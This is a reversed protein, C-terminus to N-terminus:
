RSKFTSFCVKWVRREESIELVARPTGDPRVRAHLESGELERRRLPPEGEDDVEEVARQEIDGAGDGLQRRVRHAQVRRDGGDRHAARAEKGLDLPLLAIRDRNRGRNCLATKAAPKSDISAAQAPDTAVAPDNQNM